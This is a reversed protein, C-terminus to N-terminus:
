GRGGGGGGKAGRGRSSLNTIRKKNKGSFLIQCKMCITQRWRVSVIQMSHWIRSEPFFIRKPFILFYKLIDYAPFKVWYAKTNVCSNTSPAEVDSFTGESMHSWPLNLHIQANPCDSWFRWEADKPRARKRWVMVFVRRNLYISFKVM